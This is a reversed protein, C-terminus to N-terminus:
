QITEWKTQIVVKAMNADNIELGLSRLTEEKTERIYIERPTPSNKSSKIPKPERKDKM